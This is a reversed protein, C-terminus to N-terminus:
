SSEGSVLIRRGDRHLAMGLSIPERRSDQRLTAEIQLHLILNSAEAQELSVRVGTLRPEFRRIAREISTRVREQDIESTLNFSTFDAVGFTLLSNSAEEFAPDMHDESRRTNLLATLDRCLAAEVRRRYELSQPHPDPRPDALRDLLSLPM